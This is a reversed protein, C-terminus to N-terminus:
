GSTPPSSPDRRRPVPKWTLPIMSRHSSCVMSPRGVAPDDLLRVAGVAVVSRGRDAGLGAAPRLGAGRLRDPGVAPILRARGVDVGVRQRDRLLRLVAFSSFGIAGRVDAVAALVAVVVGVAIEARYPSGFRPHVAALAGPLHRDRAMALTTRSVGLILALLSGLAAVAAGSGCSRCWGPMGAAPVADALPATASALAASGLEALM